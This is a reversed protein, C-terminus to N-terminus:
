PFTTKWFLDFGTSKDDGSTAQLFLYRNIEYELSIRQPDLNQSEKLAIQREYNLFLRDSIYKGVIITANRWNQDGSFEIVDLQLNRRLSNTLRDTIQGLLMSGLMGMNDSEEDLQAKEGQTLQQTNRRFILYSVADAETILEKGLYFQFVPDSATGTLELRLVQRKGEIDRFIHTAVLDFIPEIEAGGTFLINGGRLDFRRGYFEYNGRIIRVSGFLEFDKGTKVVDIEGGLELDAGLGRLWNNGPIYISLTGELNEMVTPMSFDARKTEPISVLDTRSPERLLMPKYIEEEQRFRDFAELNIRSNPLTVSGSYRPNEITGELLLDADMSVRLNRDDLLQFRNAKLTINFHDIGFNVMDELRVAGAINMEGRRARIQSSVHINKTEDAIIEMQIDSYNIGLEPYRFNGDSLALIGTMELDEWKNRLALQLNLDGAIDYDLLEAIDDLKIDSIEIDAYLQEDTQKYIEESSFDLSIPLDAQVSLRQRGKLNGIMSLQIIEDRYSTELLLDNILINQYSGDTLKCLIEFQPVDFRGSLDVNLAIIGGYPFDIALVEDLLAFDVGDMRLTFDNEGELDLRGDLFIFQDPSALYLSDVCIFNDDVDIYVPSKKLQWAIDAVTIDLKNLHIKPSEKFNYGGAFDFRSNQQNVTVEVEAYDEELNGKLEVKDLEIDNSVIQSLQAIIDGTIKDGHKEISTDVSLKNIEIDAYRMNAFDFDATLDFNDPTGRFNANWRGALSLDQLWPLDDITHIVSSLLLNHEQELDGSGTLNLDINKNSIDLKTIQYYMNELAIIAHLDIDGVAFDDVIPNEMNMGLDLDVIGKEISAELHSEIRPVFMNEFRIKSILLENKVFHDGEISEVTGTLQINEGSLPLAILPLSSLDGLTIDYEVTYEELTGEGSALVTLEDSDLMLHELYLQEDRFQLRCILNDLRYDGFSSPVADISLRVDLADMDVGSGEASATLNLDSQFDDNQLVAALNVESLALDIQYNVQEFLDTLMLSTHLAGFDGTLDLKMDAADTTKTGNLNLQDISHQGFTSNDLRLNVKTFLQEWDTGEGELDLTSNLSSLLTDDNLWYGLNLNNTRASLSYAPKETLDSVRGKLGISQINETIDIEFDLDDDRYALAIDMHPMGQLDLDLIDAIESLALPQAEINIDASPLETLAVQGSVTIDSQITKLNLNTIEVIDDSMTINARLNKLDILDSGFSFQTIDLTSKDSFKVAARLKLDRIYTPYGSQPEYAQISIENLQLDFESLVFSWPFATKELDDADKEVEVPSDVLNLINWEGTATETLHLNEIDLTVSKLYIERNLLNWLNYSIEVNNVMILDADDQSIQINDIAIHSFFNGRLEGIQVQANLNKNAEEVLIKRVQERFLGTQTYILGLLILFILSFCVILIIRLIKM